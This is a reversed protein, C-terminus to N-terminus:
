ASNAFIFTFFRTHATEQCNLFVWRSRRTLRDETRTRTRTSTKNTQNTINKQNTKM